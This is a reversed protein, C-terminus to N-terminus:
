RRSSPARSGGAAHALALQPRASPHIKPVDAPASAPVIAASSRSSSRSAKRRSSWPGSANRGFLSQRRGSSPECSYASGPRRDVLPEAPREHERLREHAARDLEDDAGRVHGVRGAAVVRVVVLEDVGGARGLGGLQGLRDEGRGRDRCEHHREADAVPDDGVAAPQPVVRERVGVVPGADAQDDAEAVEGAVGRDVDRRERRMRRRSPRKLRTGGTFASISSSFSASARSARPSGACRSSM